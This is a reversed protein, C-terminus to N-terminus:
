NVKVEVQWTRTMYYQLCGVQIILALLSIGVLIGAETESSIIWFPTSYLYTQIAILSYLLPAVCLCPLLFLISKNRPEKELRTQYEENWPSVVRLLRRVYFAILLIIIISFPFISLTIYWEKSHLPSTNWLLFSFNGLIIIPLINYRIFRYKVFEDQLYDDSFIIQQRIRLAQWLTFVFIAISGLLTAFSYFWVFTYRMAIPFRSFFCLMIWAVIAISIATSLLSTYKYTLEYIKM